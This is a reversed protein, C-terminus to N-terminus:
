GGCMFTPGGRGSSCGRWVVGCSRAERGTEADGGRRGVWKYSYPKKLDKTTLIGYLEIKQCNQTNVTKLDLQLEKQPQALLRLM